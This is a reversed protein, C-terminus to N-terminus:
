NCNLHMFLVVCLISQKNNMANGMNENGAKRERHGMTFYNGMFEKTEPKLKM